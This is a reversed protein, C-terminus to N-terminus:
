SLSHSSVEMVIHDVGGSCEAFLKQLDYSEPTTRETEFVRDGIMNHNTGILGVKGGAEEIVSKILHSTTTKGNTGTIGILKVKKSPNGFFNASLLALALRTDKVLICPGHIKEKKEAVVAVAGKKLAEDAFDHGDSKFGSICIFLDGPTLKRSDYCIGTVPAHLDTTKDPLMEIGKFVQEITM